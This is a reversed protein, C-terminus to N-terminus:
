NQNLSDSVADLPAMVFCSNLLSRPLNLRPQREKKVIDEAIKTSCTNNVGNQDRCDVKKLSNKEYCILELSPTSNERSGSGCVNESFSEENSENSAHPLITNSLTAIQNEINQIRM